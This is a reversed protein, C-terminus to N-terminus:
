LSQVAGGLDEDDYPVSSTSARRVNEMANHSVYRTVERQQAPVATSDSTAAPSTARKSRTSGSRKESRQRERTEERSRRLREQLALTLQSRRRHYLKWSAEAAEIARVFYQADVISELPEARHLHTGYTAGIPMPLGDPDQEKRVDVIHADHAMIHDDLFIELRDAAGGLFLPKGGHAECGSASWAPYFDRLALCRGPRSLESRLREMAAPAGRILELNAEGGYFSRLDAAAGLTPQKLTGLVLSLTGGADRVWTGVGSPGLDIRMDVGGDSGDM